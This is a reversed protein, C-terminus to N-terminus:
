ETWQAPLLRLGCIQYGFLRQVCQRQGLLLGIQGGQLLLTLAVFGLSPSGFGILWYTGNSSLNLRMRTNHTFLRKIGSWNKKHCMGVSSKLCKIYLGITLKTKLSRKEEFTLYKQITFLVKTTTEIM